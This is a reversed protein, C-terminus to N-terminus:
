AVVSTLSAVALFAGAFLLFAASFFYGASPGFKLSVGTWVVEPSFMKIASLFLSSSTFYSPLSNMPKM